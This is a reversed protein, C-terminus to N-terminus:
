ALQAAFWLLALLAMVGLVLRARPRWGLAAAIVGLVAGVIYPTV